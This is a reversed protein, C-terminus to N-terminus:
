RASATAGAGGSANNNDENNGGAKKQEALLQKERMKAADRLQREQLTLGKNGEMNSAALGKGKSNKQNKERAIEFIFDLTTDDRTLRRNQNQKLLQEIFEKLPKERMLIEAKNWYHTSYYSNLMLKSFDYMYRHQENQNNGNTISIDSSSTQSATSLPSIPNSDNLLTSQQQINTNTTRTLSAASSPNKLQTFYETVQNAYREINPMNTNFQLHYIFSQFWYNILLFKQQLSYLDRSQNSNALCFMKKHNQALQQLMTLTTTLLATRQDLKPEDNACQIFYCVSELYLGMAERVEEFTTRKGHDAQKKKKRALSALDTKSMNKLKTYNAKTSPLMSRTNTTTLSESINIGNNISNTSSLNDISTSQQLPKVNATPKEKKPQSPIISPITSTTTTSPLLTPRIKNDVDNTSTMNCNIIPENKEITTSSITTPELKDMSKQQVHSTKSKKLHTGNITNIQNNMSSCSLHSLGDIVDTSTDNKLLGDVYRKSIRQTQEIHQDDEQKIADSLTQDLFLHTPIAISLSPRKLNIKTNVSSIFSKLLARKILIKKRKNQHDESNHVHNNDDRKIEPSISRKNTNSLSEPSHKISSNVPESSHIEKGRVFDILSLTDPNTENTGDDNEADSHAAEQNDSDEDESDGDEQCPSSSIGSHQPEIQNEYSHPLHNDNSNNQNLNNNDLKNDFIETLVTNSNNINNDNNDDDDEENEDDSLNLISGRHLALTMERSEMVNQIPKSNSQRRSIIEPLKMFKPTAVLQLILPALREVTVLNKNKGISSDSNVTNTSSTTILTNNVITSSAMNPINSRSPITSKSATISLRPPHQIHFDISSQRRCDLIATARGLIQEAKKGLEDPSFRHGNTMTTNNSASSSTNNTTTSSRRHTSSSSSSRHHCHNTTFVETLQQQPAIDVVM